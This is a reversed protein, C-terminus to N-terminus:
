MEKECRFRWYLAYGHVFLYAAVLLLLPAMEVGMLAFTVMLAGFVFSMLDFARGKARDAIAVNREDQRDIEMQRQLEPAGKLVRGAILEGAGYGFMGCGLGICVYALTSRVDGKVMWFGVAWLLLGLASVIWNHYKKM